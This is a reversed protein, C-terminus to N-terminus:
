CGWRQRRARVTFEHDMRRVNQREIEAEARAEARLKTQEIDADCKAMAREIMSTLMTPSPVFHTATTTATNNANPM